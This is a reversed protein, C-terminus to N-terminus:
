HADGMVDGPGLLNMIEVGNKGSEFKKMGLLDEYFKVAKANGAYLTTVRLDPWTDLTEKVSRM